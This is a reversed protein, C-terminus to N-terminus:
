QAVVSAIFREVCYTSLQGSPGNINFDCGHTANPLDLFYNKVHFDNLKKQLRVSHNFSVMADIKGHILLTPTSNSNVYECASSEHYKEPVDKLLGGLYASFVQDVDLVWKNSKIQAGWVMDAPGYFSIVGKIKPDHFSYAAVLAIQGGASRGLLIFNNTDINLKESNACLFDLADKTDEIPAPSKYEPALRYDISAVNYGRNALYSNLDPLQKLDGESWSGGHIVIVCPSKKTTVSSPYFDLAINKGDFTKYIMNQPIIQKIGIGSFLKLFSFPSELQQLKEEGFPSASPFVKSFDSELNSGRQYASYIPLCFILFSIGSIALSLYKYQVAWFCSIFLLLSLFIFIYPFETIAVAVRWFFNTPARFLVLLSLLFLFIAFTIRLM